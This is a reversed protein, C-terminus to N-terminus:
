MAKDYKRFVSHKSKFDGGAILLLRLFRIFLSVFVGGDVAIKPCEMCSGISMIDPAVFLFLFFM